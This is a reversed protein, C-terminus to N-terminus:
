TGSSPGAKPRLPWGAPGSPCPSAPTTRSEVALNLADLRKQLRPQNLLRHRSAQARITTGDLVGQKGEVFGERQGTAVVDALLPEIVHGLRDRFEYLATRSPRIGMALWQLPM